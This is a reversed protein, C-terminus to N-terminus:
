SVPISKMKRRRLRSRALILGGALLLASGGAAVWVWPAFPPEPRGGPMPVLDGEGLVMLGAWAYGPAGDAIRDLQAARLAAAVSKGQALHHYFRDFLAAGDDDRLPWLNAVVTHSGAQFFARALGMVGEGRLVAGSASRCSAAVVVRGELPLSVIERIQLLGDESAPAPTLLVGSREPNQDDLVAHTAFHLIGFRRLDAGKLFGESAQEGVQVLSEGGLRRVASRGERRAFPLSGLRAAEGFVAARERAVAPQPLFSGGDGPAVPDALALLPAPAAERPQKRWHLWLTASPAVAIEYRAILPGAQASERLAAFPLQHLADDPIIVLRRIGPPLSGLADAMLDRYLGVAPGAEAGDRRAFLGNFLEVAPRLAVRDRQLRWARTGGRTTTLVWSGGAVDGFVDRDPAIQFSVVAEDPALAARVQDLTAFAPARLASLAPSADAIRGRLDDDELELDELYAQAATRQPASAEPDLLQRQVLSIEEHVQSLREQLPKLSAPQAPAAKAATLADLLARARKRESVEFAGDLDRADKGSSWSELLRGSFWSYDDSWSSFLGVQSAAGGQLDRLTEIAELATRADAVARSRPGSSWSARMRERWAYAMGWSDKAEHALALAEQTAERARRPNEESLHRSLANLCYSRDRILDAVELCADLHKHAEEGPLLLGLLWYSKAQNTINQAEEAKALAQRALSIAREKDGPRPAEAIGDLFSRALNYRANAEGYSDGESAALEALRQFYDQAERPRGLELTVTGLWILSERRVSYPGDPFAFKEASRLLLYARELDQGLLFLHRARVVQSRAILEADESREAVQQAREAQHGAEEVQGKDDLIRQLNSRAIVECRPIRKAACVAAARRYMLEAREPESYLLHGLNLLLWPNEPHRALNRRIRSEGESSLSPSTRGLQYFCDASEEGEPAAAFSAECDAFITEAGASVPAFLTSVILLFSAFNRFSM